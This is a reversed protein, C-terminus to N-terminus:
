SVDNTALYWPQEHGTKWWIHVRAATRKSGIFLYGNEVCPYDPAAWEKLLALVDDRATFRCDWRIRLVFKVRLARLRRMLDSSYGIGRDALVLPHSDAPLAAVVHGVLDEIIGVQGAAPYADTANAIYCRWMLPIARQEYALSVMLVGIRDSIKTEDVLLIARQAECRSWVWAVWEACTQEVDLRENSLWRNLRRLVTEVTGFKGLEEAIWRLQSHRGQIIGYCFMALGEAQHAGLSPLWQRLEDRWRYVIHM